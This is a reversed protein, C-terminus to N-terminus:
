PAARRAVAAGLISGLAIGLVMSVVGLVGLRVCGLAAALAAIAGATMFSAFRKNWRADRLPIVLGSLTGVLVSFATCYAEAGGFGCRTDLAALLLGALLPVSGALLGTTVSEMGRRDRWRLWVAVVLLAVGLCACAERGRAELLCLGTVPLLVLAVRSAKWVRGVEYARLGRVALEEPNVM